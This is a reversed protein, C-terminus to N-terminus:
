LLTRLAPIPWLVCAVSDQPFHCYTLNNFLSLSGSWILAINWINLGNEGLAGKYYRRESGLCPERSFLAAQDEILAAARQLTAEWVMEERAWFATECFVISEFTLAINWIVKSEFTLAINWIVKQVTKNIFAKFKILRNNIWHPQSCFVTFKEPLNEPLNRYILNRQFTVKQLVNYILKIIVRTTKHVRNM